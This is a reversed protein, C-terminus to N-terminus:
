EDPLLVSFVSGKGPTSRVEIRGGHREVIEQAISLGLGTGATQRSRNKDARYFREFIHSIDEEDIGIGHDEVEIRCNKDERFARVIVESHEPSYKIANDLFILLLRRIMEKDAKVLVEKGCGNILRIDKHSNMHALTGEILGNVDFLERHLIQQKNDARALELLNGILASMGLVEEKMGAVLPQKPDTMEMLEISSLLVALPTRLEHSADAVFRKQRELLVVLPSITRDALFNGCGRAVALMLLLAGLWIYIYRGSLLKLPTVNVLIVVKGKATRGSIMYFQWLNNEEDRLSFFELGNGPIAQVAKELCLEAIKENKPHEAFVPRNDEFWYAYSYISSIDSVMVTERPRSIKGMGFGEAERIEATLADRMTDAIVKHVMYKCMTFGGIVFFLLMVAIIATYKYSLRRRVKDIM